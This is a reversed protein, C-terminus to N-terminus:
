YQTHTPGIKTTLDLKITSLFVFIFVRLKAQWEYAFVSKLRDNKRRSREGLRPFCAQKDGSTAYVVAITETLFSWHHYASTGESLNSLESTEQKWSCTFCRDEGFLNSYLGFTPRRGNFPSHTATKRSELSAGIGLHSTPENCVTIGTYSLFDYRQWWYHKKPSQKVNKISLFPIHPVNALNPPSVIRVLNHPLM